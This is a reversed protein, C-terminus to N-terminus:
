GMAAPKWPRAFARFLRPRMAPSCEPHTSKIGIGIGARFDTRLTLLARETKRMSEDVKTLKEASGGRKTWASLEEDYAKAAASLRIVQVSIPRM